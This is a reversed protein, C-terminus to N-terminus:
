GQAVNISEIWNGSKGIENNNNYKTNLEDYGDHNSIRISFTM